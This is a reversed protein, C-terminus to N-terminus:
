SGHSAFKEENLVLLYGDPDQLWLERRQHEQDDLEYVVPWHHDALQQQLHDLNDCSIELQVGAGPLIRDLNQFLLPHQAEMSQRQQFVIQMNKFSLLLCNDELHSLPMLQPSLSLIERYFHETKLLDAAALTLNLQM